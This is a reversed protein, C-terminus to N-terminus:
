FSGEAGNSLVFGPHAFCFDAALLDAEPERTPQLAV